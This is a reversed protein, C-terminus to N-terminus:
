TLALLETRSRVGHKRLVAGVHKEVTKTAIRLRSAIQKDALGQRVLELVERERATLRDSLDGLPSAGFERLLGSFVLVDGQAAAVVARGLETADADRPVVGRVGPLAWGRM